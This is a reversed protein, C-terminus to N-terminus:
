APREGVSAADKSCEGLVELARKGLDELEFELLETNEELTFEEVRALTLSAILKPREHTSLHAEFM